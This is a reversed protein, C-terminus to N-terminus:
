TRRVTATMNFIVTTRVVGDEETVNLLAGHRIGPHREYLDEMTESPWPDLCSPICDGWDKSSTRNPEVEISVVQHSNHAVSTTNPNGTYHEANCWSDVGTKFIRCDFGDTENAAIDIPTQNNIGHLYGTMNYISKSRGGSALTVFLPVIFTIL